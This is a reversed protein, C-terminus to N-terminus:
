EPFATRYAHSEGKNAKRLSIISRIWEDETRRLPYVCVLAPGAVSGYAVIRREGHYRRRDDPEITSGDFLAVAIELLWGRGRASRETKPPHWRFNM